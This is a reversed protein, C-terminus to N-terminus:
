LVLETIKEYPMARGSIMKELAARGSAPESWALGCGATIAQPVPILRGFLGSNRAEEEMALADTTTRFTVIIRNEKPRM